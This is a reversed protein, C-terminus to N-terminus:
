PFPVLAVGPRGQPGALPPTSGLARVVDDQVARVPRASGVFGNMMISFALREGSGTLLVGSLSSVGSMSGTKARVAGANATIRGAMTGDRGTVPLASLMEPGIEFSRAAHSVVRVLQRPTVQTYRSMGSGDALRYATSDLGVWDALASRVACLGARWSGEGSRAVGMHKVLAEGFLNDSEKLYHRVLVDLHESLCRALITCDAPAPSCRVTGGLAIGHAALHAAFVNGAYIAPDPVTRVRTIAASGQRMSGTIRLTGGALSVDLDPGDTTDARTTAEIRLPVGAEAPYVAAVTTDGPLAGPHITVRVTNHNLMFAHVPSNYEYPGEDWMWGAGWLVTDFLTADLLLDGRIEQIGKERLRGALDDLDGTELDPAGGAILCVDGSIVSDCPPTSSVVMTAFRRAPGLSHLAATAVLLKANSAPVFLRDANHDIIEDGADISQVFVGVHTAPIQECLSDVAARVRTLRVPDRTPLSPEEAGPTPACSPLIATLLLSLLLIARKM